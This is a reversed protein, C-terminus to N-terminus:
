SYIIAADLSYRFVPTSSFHVFMALDLFMGCVRSMSVLTAAYYVDVVRAWCYLVMPDVNRTQQSTPQETNGCM